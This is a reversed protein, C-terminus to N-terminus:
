KVLRLSNKLEPRFNQRMEMLKKNKMKGVKLFVNNPGKGKGMLDEAEFSYVTGKKSPSQGQNKNQAQAFVDQVSLVNMVAVIMWVGLSRVSVSGIM